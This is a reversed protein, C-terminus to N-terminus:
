NLYRSVLGFDGTQDGTFSHIAYFGVTSTICIANPSKDCGSCCNTNVYYLDKYLTSHMYM